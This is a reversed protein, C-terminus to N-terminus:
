ENKDSWKHVYGSTHLIESDLYHGKDIIKGIKVIKGAPFNVLRQNPDIKRTPFNVLRQNPCLKANNYNNNDNNNYKNLLNNIKDYEKTTFLLEWEEGSNLAVGIPNLNFRDCFEIVIKPMANILKKSKVEFNGMYFLEKGLGDSIDCCSSAYNYKNLLLGIKVQAIPMYLKEMIESYEEILINYKKDKEIMELIKFACYVKGIDNTIVIDDGINGNYRYIPNHTIGFATGCLTLEKSKNTDGGIIPCGYLETAYNIGNTLEEIFKKSPNNFGMSVVVGLPKAGMSAIDSLNATIVRHGIQFPSLINPFHSSRFMMDTTITLYNGGNMNLVACDDGISKVVRSSGKYKLNNQIIKIINLEDMFVGILLFLFYVM